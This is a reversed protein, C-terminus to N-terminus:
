VLVRISSKYFRPKWGAPINLVNFFLSNCTLREPMVRTILFSRRLLETDNAYRHRPASSRWAHPVLALFAEDFSALVEALVPWNLISAM